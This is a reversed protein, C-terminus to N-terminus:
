TTLGDALDRTIAHPDRDTAPGYGGGSPGMLCIRDGAKAKRYPFKSHLEQEGDRGRNLIVRGPAGDEGGFLGPPAWISGEGELSFGTDELFEIERISGLGGRWTGAGGTGERLEYQTVRLPYHSEIDEVPNNRTNAYLTDVADMGDKGHRAGYSGEHIDMYVWHEGDKFGSYSVIKLTGTGASIAEPLIPALARMLTDAVLNGGCFRAITPAPFTPNALWGEPATITIARFLGSNTPVADHTDTDLLISRLAVWVALDVTGVFPMNIPLDIQPSTGALDVTLESGSITVAVKIVLDRYSPDPNDPYGDLRGEATYTGDPLRDIERRMMRDSYDMVDACALRFTDLGYREILEELRAAGIKAATVQAEMDGVVLHPARVNDKILQWLVGNVRGDEEIKLANFHLGEAYADGADVIGCTGPSLAGLDLHHATTGSFGVLEGDHFVPVIFGVDPQHSAGYYPHNHIVVDGPRWEQGTEGFRREIGRVYGPIPGSQLPTSQVSECLQNADVDCLACGFDESERIISSYSMRALKHGMEVAISDLGGAIVATTVPDLRSM